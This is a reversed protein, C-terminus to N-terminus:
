SILLTLVSFDLLRKLKFPLVLSFSSMKVHREPMEYNIQHHFPNVEQRM